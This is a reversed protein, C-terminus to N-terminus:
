DLDQGHATLVKRLFVLPKACARHVRLIIEIMSTLCDRIRPKRGFDQSVSIAGLIPLEEEASFGFCYFCRCWPLNEGHKM